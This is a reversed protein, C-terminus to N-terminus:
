DDARVAPKERIMDAAKEAIAITPANTNGSTITPMVSADIVRLASVGHVRLKNDVVAMEGDGMKCTGVPHYLTHVEDRIHEALEEDTEVDPGPQIEEGRWQDLPGARVIERARKVGELMVELDEQKSFYQPDIIPDQSPDDSALEVYGRSEPRLQTTGLSLGQGEDPNGFGHEVAYAATFHFQIDPTPESEDIYTFGGAEPGNSSMAPPDGKVRDYVLYYILHDQLNKGVGPRDALVDIDRERLHEAPGIGSLMLLQPSNIAGGCVLVEASADADVQTGAQEYTVGVARDGDFRIQRVQAETEVTLNQRDLVPTIYAKATSCRKGDKQTVHYLGAGEQHEGNFNDNPQLGTEAAADIYAQSTPHPDALDAVHLQGNQGYVETTGSEYQEAREFYQMFEEAKWGSDGHDAWRDYDEPAGRIYIMANNSSSGGLMKGRPHYLKRDHLESQPVTAYDWDVDTKFLEGTRIPTHIAERDDPKGAELLLVSTDKQETLRHAVTCGASGAGVVIYDHTSTSQSM